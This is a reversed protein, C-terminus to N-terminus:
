KRESIKSRWFTISHRGKWTVHYISRSTDTTGIVWQNITM